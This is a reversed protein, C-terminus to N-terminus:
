WFKLAFHIAAWVIAVFVAIAFLAYLAYFVLVFTVKTKLKSELEEFEDETKM